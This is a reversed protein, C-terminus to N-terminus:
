RNNMVQRVCRLATRNGSGDVARLFNASLKVFREGRKPGSTMQVMDGTVLYTGRGASTVYSTANIVAFDLEPQRVGAPGGADGPLECAYDGIQLSSIPGGPVASASSALVLLATSAFLRTMPRSGRITGILLFHVGKGLERGVALVLAVGAAQEARGGASLARRRPAEAGPEKEVKFADCMAFILPTSM